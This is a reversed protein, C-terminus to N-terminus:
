ITAQRRINALQDQSNTMEDTVVFAKMPEPALGGGLEFAGSMMQPAPTQPVMQGGGGGGGGGSPPTGSIIKRINNAAFAAALGAMTVPYAGFSGATAGINANAANFANIVSQTGAITAQAVAAAKAIATGEGAAEGIAQLGQNAMDIEFDLKAKDLDKQKQAERDLIATKQKEYIETIATIDAGSKRAMELKQEYATKLEELERATGELSEARLERQTELLEKELAVQNTKQESMQGTITEELELMANQAQGLAIRNQVSNNIDVQAQAADIQTQIQQRQLNQQKELVKGLDENAKIREAFTKTEDDRIQRQVEADKLYQANLRAFEVEALQAAKNTETIAKAQDITSKTYESIAAAGKTVAETARDVSNDVGTLVDIWEKQADIGSELAGKFDGEFLKKLAGGLHGAMDLLSHFRELMNEKLAQGLKKINEVPNEFLDKFFGTVKGVNDSLFGFLDNFAISLSTMTTEFTDVVKQNKSFVELLKAMLAVVIGIGASKIAKGVVNFAGGIGIVEKEAKTSEKKLEEVDKTIAAVNSKVEMEIVEKAM